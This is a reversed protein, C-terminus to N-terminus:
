LSGAFERIHQNFAEPNEMMVLHGANEILAMQAGPINDKLYQSHEPPMM